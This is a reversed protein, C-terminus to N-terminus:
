FLREDVSQCGSEHFLGADGPACHRLAAVFLHNGVCRQPNIKKAIELKSKQKQLDIIVLSVEKSEFFANLM